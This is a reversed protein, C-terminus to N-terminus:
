CPPMRENWPPFTIKYLGYANLTGILNSGGKTIISYLSLYEMYNENKCLIDDIQSCNLIMNVMM